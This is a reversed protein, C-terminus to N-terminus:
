NKALEAFEPRVRALREWVVKADAYAGMDHLTLGYMVWDSIAANERPRQRSVRQLDADALTAFSAEASNEPNDSRKVSWRYTKGPRLSVNAPLAFKEGQARASIVTDQKTGDSEVLEFQVPADVGGAQWAFSPKMTSIKGRTPSVLEVRALASRMRISAPATQAVKVVVDSSVRWPTQRAVPAAGQAAKIADGDIRFSGPGRLSFEKGTALFMVSARAERGLELSGDKSLESMLKAATGAITAEGKVDALIAVTQANAGLAALAVFAVCTPSILSQM